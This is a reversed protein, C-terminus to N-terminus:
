KFNHIDAHIQLAYTVIIYYTIYRKISKTNHFSNENASHSFLGYNCSVLSIFVLFFFFFFLFITLLYELSFFGHLLPFFIHLIIVNFRSVFYCCCLYICFKHTEIRIIHKPIVSLVSGYVRNISSKYREFSSLNKKRWLALIINQHM